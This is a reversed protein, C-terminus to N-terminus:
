KRKPQNIAPIINRLVIDRSVNLCKKSFNSRKTNKNYRRNKKEYAHVVCIKYNPYNSSPFDKGVLLKQRQM